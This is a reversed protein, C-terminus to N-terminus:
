MRASVTLPSSETYLMCVQGTTLGSAVNAVIAAGPVNTAGYPSTYSTVPFSGSGNYLRNSAGAINVSTRVPGNSLLITALTAGQAYGCGVFMGAPYLIFYRQCRALEQQFDVTAFPLLTDSDVWSVDTINMQRNLTDLQNSQTTAAVFNGAQWANLTSTQWTTGAAFTFSVEAALANSTVWTGTTDGPIQVSYDTPTTTINFTTVFSRNNAANRIAVSITAAQSASARFRLWSSRAASSGYLLRRLYYGEIRTGKTAVDGAALSAKATTTKAFMYCPDFNSVSGTTVGCQYVFGSGAGNGIWQDAFYGVAATISVPTTTEQQITGHPNLILNPRRTAYLLDQADTYNKQSTDGAQMQALNVADGSLTGTALNKIKKFNWDLDAAPKGQGDRTLVNSLGNFVDTLQQNYQTALITTGPVAPFIPSALPVFNGNGDYPM